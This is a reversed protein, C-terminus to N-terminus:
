GATKKERQPLVLALLLGLMVLSLSLLVPMTVRPGIREFLQGILWPFVMGGAGSAVLIWGILAGTLHLRGGAFTIATAFISAISFGLLITGVWLATSSAPWLLLIGIAALSGLLDSLLITEPRLRASTLVGLLRGVTFAGWFASTLYAAGTESALGLRLAFTYIWNGFSVELGVYAVFFFVILLFLGNISRGGTPNAAPASRRIPPSPLFWLWAAVPLALLAFCWYVWAIGGTAAVVRAFVLPALLAGLGFFFHLGNMFPGVKEGHVWTLLTNCGTDLAGQVAGMLFIVAVLLWLSHLVPVLAAALATLLLAASQIRHGPFRDYARGGLQSGLMYGLSGLVFIISIRDLPSSTNQALFPLAPGGISVTAGLTIFAAYYALTTTLPRPRALSTNTL